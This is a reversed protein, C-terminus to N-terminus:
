GGRCLRLSNHLETKANSPLSFFFLAPLNCTYITPSIKLSIKIKENNKHPVNTKKFCDLKLCTIQKFKISVFRSFLDSKVQNIIPVVIM